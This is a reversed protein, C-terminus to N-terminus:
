AAKLYSKLLKRLAEQHGGKLDLFMLRYPNRADGVIKGQLFVRRLKPNPEARNVIVMDFNDNLFDKPIKDELLTGGLSINKSYSRFTKGTKSILIVEIKYSLREQRRREDEGRINISDQFSQNLVKEIDLQDGSFDQFFYGYDIKENKKSAEVETYIQDKPLPIGEKLKTKDQFTRQTSTLTETSPAYTATSEETWLEKPLKAKKQGNPPLKFAPTVVFYKQSSHLFDELNIWDKMGPSWIFYHALDRLKFGLIMKQVEMSSLPRSQRHKKSDFLVWIEGKIKMYSRNPM